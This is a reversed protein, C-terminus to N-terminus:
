QFDVTPTPQSSNVVTIPIGIPAGAYLGTGFDAHVSVVDGIAGDAVLDAMRRIAPICRMWMAEMLFVNGARAVEVLEEAEPM